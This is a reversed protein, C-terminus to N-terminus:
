AEIQLAGKLGLNRSFPFNWWIACYNSECAMQLVIISNGYSLSNKRTREYKPKKSNKIIWNLSPYNKKKITFRYHLTSNNHALLLFSSDLPSDEQM